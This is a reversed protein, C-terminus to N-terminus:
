ALVVQCPNTAKHKEKHHTIEMAEPIKEIGYVEHTILSRVDIRGSAIWKAGIATEDRGPGGPFVWTINGSKMLGPDVKVKGVLLAVQMVRGGPRVMRFAQHLTTHGSLGQDPNGGACEFVLDVGWGGTLERVREIPDESRADIVADAKFKRSLAFAEEKVDTVYVAGAGCMRAAQLMYLGMVGQGMIAVTEGPRLYSDRIGVVTMALPQLCVISADDLSPPVKVLATAPMAIQEAFAGPTTIGIKIKDSCLSGRAARCWSCVGCPTNGPTSVIDGIAFGEVGKGIAIIEASMEHGMLQVPAHKKIRERMAQMFNTAIGLSREVETISPQVRRVKCVVWGPKPEPNPVEDLRMDGISYFRWAKMIAEM